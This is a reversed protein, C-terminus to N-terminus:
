GGAVGVGSLELSVSVSRLGLLVALVSAPMRDMKVGNRVYDGGPRYRAAGDVSLFVPVGSAYDVDAEFEALGSSAYHAVGVLDGCGGLERLPRTLRAYEEVMSANPLEKFSAAVAVGSGNTELAVGRRLDFVSVSYMKAVARDVRSLRYEEGPKAWVVSLSIERSRVFLPFVDGLWTGNSLYYGSGPRYFTRVVRSFSLKMGEWGEKGPREADGSYTFNFVVEYGEGRKVVAVRLSAYSTDGVYDRGGYEFILPSHPPVFSYVLVLRSFVARSGCEDLRALYLSSNGSGERLGSDM